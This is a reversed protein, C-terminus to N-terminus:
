SRYEPIEGLIEKLIKSTNINAPLIVRCDDEFSINIFGSKTDKILDRLHALNHVRTGNVKDVIHNKVEYGYTYESPLIDSVIVIQEKDDKPLRNAAAVLHYNLDQDQHKEAMIMYSLPTFIFGAYIFYAPRMLYPLPPVMQYYPRAKFEVKRTKGNRVIDLKVTEDPQLMAYYAHFPLLEDYDKGTLQRLQISGDPHINLGNIKTIVDFEKLPPGGPRVSNVVLGKSQLYSQLTSNNMTQLNVGPACIGIHPRGHKIFAEACKRFYNLLLTSIVLGVPMIADGSISAYTVGVVEGDMNLTPGGSNGPNITADLEFVLGTTAKGVRHAQLRSISGRTVSVNTGGLPYGYARLKDGKSPMPGYPLPRLGRWFSKRSKVPRLIALDCEAISFVEELPFTQPSNHRKAMIQVANSVCHHNTIIFQQKAIEIAFGTGQIQMQDLLQWPKAYSYELIHSYLLVVSHEPHAM